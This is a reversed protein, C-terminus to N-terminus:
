KKRSSAKMRLKSNTWQAGAGVPSALVREARPLAEVTTLAEVAALLAEVAALAGVATLAEVITLAEVVLVSGGQTPAGRLRPM